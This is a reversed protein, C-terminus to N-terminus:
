PPESANRQAGPRATPDARQWSESFPAPAQSPRAGPSVPEKNENSGIEVGSLRHNNVIPANIGTRQALLEDYVAVLEEGRRRWSLLEKARCRGLAAREAAEEPHELVWSLKETLDSLSGFRAYIGAEGLIERNAPADFTVVPLQMSLYNLLKGNGETLSMKPAVAVDGLALYRQADLYPIRGPFSTRGGIGMQEAMARYRDNGPFGMILFFSKPNDALVQRAADLLLDSGQYPALLGLYVVVQADAPIGLSERLHSREVPSLAGPSFRETDVADAVTLIRDPPYGDDILRCRANESSTLIRDPAHNIAAELKRISAELLGDRRLFRHDLMEETLSGQYDFILPRQLIRAIPTGILAGEHLHAHIIDPKVQLAIRLTRVSLVADLYLKHRSSGVVVRKRWPVDITRRIDLGPVDMGNHYTCITVQHGRAQLARVEEYIRVHCGYDSFFSTPAIMLIRLPKRHGNTM